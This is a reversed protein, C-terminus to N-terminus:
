FQNCSSQMNHNKINISSLVMWSVSFAVPAHIKDKRAKVIKNRGAAVSM